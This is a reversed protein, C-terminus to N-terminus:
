PALTSREFRRLWTIIARRPESEAVHAVLTANLDAYMDAPLRLMSRMQRVITLTDALGRRNEKLDAYLLGLIAELVERPEPDRVIPWLANRLGSLDDPSASVVDILPQPPAAEQEIAREAWRHVVKGRILGLLLATRYYTAEIAYSTSM